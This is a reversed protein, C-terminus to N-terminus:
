LFLYDFIEVLVIEGDGDTFTVQIGKSSQVMMGFDEIPILWLSGVGYQDDAVSIVLQTSKKAEELAQTTEEPTELKIIM